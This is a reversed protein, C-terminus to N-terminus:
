PKEKLIKLVVEKKDTMDSKKDPLQILVLPNIDTGEKKYMEALEERKKLAQGIVLEDVSKPGVKIKMFEPNVSIESKIMEEAKVGSLYVKEIEAVNEKM